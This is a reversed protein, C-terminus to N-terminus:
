QRIKSLHWGNCILCPYIRLKRGNFGWPRKNLATEADKKDKFIIKGCKCRSKISGRAFPNM